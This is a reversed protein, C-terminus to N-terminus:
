ATAGIHRAVRNALDGTSGDVPTRVRFLPVTRAIRSCVDLQTVLRAATPVHSVFTSGLLLCLDPPDIPAIEIDRVSRTRELFYAARLPVPADAVRITVYHKSAADSPWDLDVGALELATRETLPARALGIGPQTLLQDGHAELAVVDDTLFEAGHALLHLALSTKGTGSPAIFAISASGMRVASAHLVELGQLAAAIPLGQGILLHWRSRGRPPAYLIRDGGTSILCQGLGAIWVRYGANPERDITFVARGGSRRLEFSRQATGAPWNARTQARECLTLEIYRDAAPRVQGANSSELVGPVRFDARLEIGFARGAYTRTVAARAVAILAM